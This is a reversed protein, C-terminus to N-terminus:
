LTASIADIQAATDNAAKQLADHNGSAIAAELDPFAVASYGNRGYLMLDLRHVAEIEAGADPVNRAWDPAAANFRQIAAAVPALDAAIGSTTSISALSDSMQAAYAALNYPIPGRTMRFAILALMQALARHNVFGPDAQTAAYHLDDFGSHYVGFPGFYGFNMVPIGLLYLFPEHDSGGGPVTTKAGGPEGHWADWVTTTLARPDPVLRAARPVQDVLAAVADANFFNGTANEDANIYAICGRRLSAQHTRVYSDSGAEGIEEGDWGAITISYSPRWGSRYIYGLAHAAELLTSIGSGNDTVGYVWADRHGGLILTHSTDLGPLTGITNWITIWPYSIDVRMHVPVTTAGLVYDADLGGHMAKPSPSGSMAQLLRQANYATIPMVPIAVNPKGLSGRQVAGFPQYPGDPYPAGHASGGRDAPDGYFIVGGAGHEAARRALAGRFESGYRILVINGQVAVGAATLAQYDADLGHGAYVLPATIEGSAGFGNFPIGADPRTGDPDAAIPTEHLDFDVRPNVFLQLVAGRFQPVQTFVPEIRAVFGYSALKDRMWLAMDHDGITGPFHNEENLRASDAMAGQATPVDILFRELAGDGGEARASGVSSALLALVTLAILPKV